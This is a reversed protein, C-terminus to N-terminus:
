LWNRGKKMNVDRSTEILEVCSIEQKIMRMEQIKGLLFKRVMKKRLNRLIRNFDHEVNINGLNVREWLFPTKLSVARYKNDANVGRDERDHCISSNTNVIITFGHYLVRQCYNDDEGYHTFLSVDFGGVTEICQRNILWAAANIFPREYYHKTRQMYADSVFSVGMYSSFRNDLGNRSGNLHIPSAIGVNENEEFTHILETITNKEIWADQNLLFVYDADNDIAYRIGINNAKAFGLNEKSEILHVKSFHEKIYEVTGDSSANDIVIIEVPTESDLLSGFCRDYWKRGNYTIVIAYIKMFCKAVM